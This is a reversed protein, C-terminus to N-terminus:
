NGDPLVLTPEDPANAYKYGSAYVTGTHDIFLNRQVTFTMLEEFNEFDKTKWVGGGPALVYYTNKFKDYCNWTITFYAVNTSFVNKFTKGDDTSKHLTFNNQNQAIIANDDPVFMSLSYEPTPVPVWSKGRDFTRLIIWNNHSITLHSGSKYSYVRGLEEQNELGTSDKTWTLGNDNSCYIGLEWRNAWILDDKSISLIFSRNNGPIPKSVFSWTQGWDTTKYLNGDYGSGFVEAKSNIELYSFHINNFPNLQEWNYFANKLIYINGGSIMMTRNKLTDRVMDDIGVLFGSEITNIKDSFFATAHITIESYFKGTDDFIKGKVTQQNQEIGLKWRTTMKNGQGAQIFTNDLTGGEAAVTLEVHFNEPTSSFESDFYAIVGIENELYEGAVAGQNEGVLEFQFSQMTMSGPEPYKECSIVTLVLILIAIHNKM